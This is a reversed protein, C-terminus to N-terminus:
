IRVLIVVKANQMDSIWLEFVEIPQTGGLLTLNSQLFAFSFLGATDFEHVKSDNGLM